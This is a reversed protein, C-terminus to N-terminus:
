ARRLLKAEEGPSDEFIAGSEILDRKMAASIGLNNGFVANEVKAGSLDAESLDAALLKANTLNAGSLNAKALEANFLQTNQLQAKVLRAGNLKAFCLDANSLDANSLDLKTHENIKAFSLDAGSLDAGSLDAGSLDARILNARSLKAQILKANILNAFTLDARSLDAHSLDADSLNFGRMNCGVAKVGLFNAGVLDEAPNLGARKVLEALNETDAELIQKVQAQFQEAVINKVPPLKKPNTLRKQESWAVFAIGGVVSWAVTFAPPKGGTVLLMLLFGAGVQVTQKILSNFGAKAEEYLSIEKHNIRAM